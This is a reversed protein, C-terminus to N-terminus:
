LGDSKIKCLKLANYLKIDFRPKTSIILFKDFFIDPFNEDIMTIQM